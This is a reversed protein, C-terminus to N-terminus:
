GLFKLLAKEMTKKPAPKGSFLEFQKMGQHLLMKYGRVIQNGKKEAMKLLPTMDPNYVIDFVTASKSIFDAELPSEGAHKTGHMGIPTCQIILDFQETQTPSILEDSIIGRHFFGKPPRSGGPFILISKSTNSQVPQFNSLYQRASNGNRCLITIQSIPKECVAHGIALASGGSGVILVKKANWDYGSEEIAMIAGSADTNTGCLTKDSSFYLTNISGIRIAEKDLHDAVRKLSVKYPITISLGKIGLQKISQKLGITNQVQFPVYVANIGYEQFAANHMAPSASHGIPNGIIGYLETSGDITPM